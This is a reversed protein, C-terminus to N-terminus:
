KTKYKRKAFTMFLYILGFGYINLCALSFRSSETDCQDGMILIGLTSIIGTFFQLIQAMTLYKAQKIETQPRVTKIFFYLYMVTHIVSNLLVVVTVWSSQSAVGGYLCLVIGFHHYVQLFSPAKRKLVLIWTDVFEWYKSLYFIIAWSGLGYENWLTGRTDCYTDFMGYKFLHTVALGWANWAVTGSFVFLLFNHIAIFLRLRPSNPHLRMADRLMSVPHDSVVYLLACALVISPQLLIALWPRTAFPVRDWPLNHFLDSVTTALPRGDVSESFDPKWLLPMKSKETCQLCSYFFPRSAGSSSFWVRRQHPFKTMDMPM